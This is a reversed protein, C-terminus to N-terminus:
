LHMLVSTPVSVALPCSLEHSHGVRGLWAGPCPLAHGEGGPVSSGPGLGELGPGTGPFPGMRGARCTVEQFDPDMAGLPGEWPLQRWGAALLWCPLALDAAEQGSVASPLASTLSPVPPPHPPLLMGVQKLVGVQGRAVQFCCTSGLCGRSALGLRHSPSAKRTWRTGLPAM